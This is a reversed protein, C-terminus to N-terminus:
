IPLCLDLHLNGYSTKIHLINSITLIETNLMVENWELSSPYFVSIRETNAWKKEGQLNLSYVHMERLHM